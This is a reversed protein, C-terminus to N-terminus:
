LTIQSALFLRILIVTMSKGFSLHTQKNTEFRGDIISEPTSSSYKHLVLFIELKALVSTRQGTDGGGFWAFEEVTV